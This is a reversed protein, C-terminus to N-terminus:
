SPESHTEEGQEVSESDPPNDSEKKTEMRAQIKKVERLTNLVGRNALYAILSGAFFLWGLPFIFTSFLGVSIALLFLGMNHLPRIGMGVLSNRMAQLLHKNEQEIMFPFTYFQVIVWILVLVRFVYGLYTGLNSTMNGYFWINLFLLFGAIINVLGWLLSVWFFKRFGEFYIRVGAPKEHIVQNTVYFMAATAPFSTIVPISLVVWLINSFLFPSIKDFIENFKEVFNLFGSSDSFM